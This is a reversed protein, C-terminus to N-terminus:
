QQSDTSSTLQEHRRRAEAAEDPRGLTENATALLSWLRPNMPDCQAARALCYTGFEYAKWNELSLAKIGLHYWAPWYGPAWSITRTLEPITASRSHAYNDRRHIIRGAHFWLLLVFLLAVAPLVTAGLHRHLRRRWVSPEACRRTEEGLPALLLGCFTAAVVGYLPVHYPFDYGAHVILAAIGGLAAARSVHTLERSHWSRRVAKVYLVALVAAFLILVVGGDAFLQFLVSEAHHPYRDIRVEQMYRTSLTRFADAGGGLLPFDRWAALSMKWVRFRTQFSSHSLNLRHLEETLRGGTFSAIAILGACSLCALAIGVRPNRLSVSFLGAATLGAALIFYAGMSLSTAVGAVLLLLLACWLLCREYERKRIDEVTLALVAPCLLALFCGYHNPNGFCALANDVGLPIFWWAKGETPIFHVSVLGAAAVIGGACSLFTLYVLRSTATLRSALAAACVMSIALLIMRLTGARNLSLSHFDSSNSTKRPKSGQASAHFAAQEPDSGLSANVRGNDPAVLPSKETSDRARDLSLRSATAVTRDAEAHLQARVPSSFPRM